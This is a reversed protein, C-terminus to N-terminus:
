AIVFSWQQSKAAMGLRCASHGTNDFPSMTWHSVCHAGLSTQALINARGLHHCELRVDGQRAAKEVMRYGAALAAAIAHLTRQDATHQTLGREKVHDNEEAVTLYGDESGDL